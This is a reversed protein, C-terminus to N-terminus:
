CVEKSQCAGQVQRRTSETLIYFMEIDTITHASSKNKCQSFPSWYNHEIALTSSAIPNCKLPSIVQLTAVNSKLAAIKGSLVQQVAEQLWM